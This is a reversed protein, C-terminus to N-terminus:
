SDPQLKVLWPYNKYRQSNTYINKKVSEVQTGFICDTLNFSTGKSLQEIKGNIDDLDLFVLNFQESLKKSLGAALESTIHAWTNLDLCRGVWGM